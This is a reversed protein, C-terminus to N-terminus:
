KQEGEAVNVDCCENASQQSHFVKLCNHCQWHTVNYIQFANTM